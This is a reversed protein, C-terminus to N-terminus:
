FVVAQGKVWLTANTGTGNLFTLRLVSGTLVADRLLIYEGTLNSDFIKHSLYLDANQKSYTVAYVQKFTVDVVSHGVAKAADRSAHVECCERWLQGTCQKAGMLMVRALAYDSRGLPVDLNFTAGGAIVQSTNNIEFMAPRSHHDHPGPQTDGHAGGDTSPSLRM